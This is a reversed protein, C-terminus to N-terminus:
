VSVLFDFFLFYFGCNVNWLNWYVLIDFYGLLRLVLVVVFVSVM